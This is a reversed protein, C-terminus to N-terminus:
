LSKIVAYTAMTNKLKGANETGFIILGHIRSLGHVQMKVQSHEMKTM